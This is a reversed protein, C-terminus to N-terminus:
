ASLSFNGSGSDSLDSGSNDYPAFQWTGFFTGNTLSANTDFAGNVVMWGDGMRLKFQINGINTGTYSLGTFDTTFDEEASDANTISGQFTLTFDNWNGTATMTITGVYPDRFSGGPDNYDDKSDDNEVYGTFQGSFVPPALNLTVYVVQNGDSSGPASVTITGYYTGPSMDITKLQVGISVGGAVSGANYLSIWSQQATETVTPSGGGLNSVDFFQAPPDLTSSATANFTLHTPSVSLYPPNQQTPPGQQIPPGNLTSPPLYPDLNVPQGEVAQGSAIEEGDQFVTRGAPTVLLSNDMLNQVATNANGLAALFGKVAAGVSYSSGYEAANCLFAIGPYLSRALDSGQAVLNIDDVWSAATWEQEYAAQFDALTQPMTGPTLPIVQHHRHRRRQSLATWVGNYGLDDAVVSTVLSAAITNGGYFKSIDKDIRVLAQKAKGVQSLLIRAELSDHSSPLFQRRRGM